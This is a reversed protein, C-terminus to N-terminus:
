KADDKAKDETKNMLTGGVAIDITSRVPQTVRNYFAQVLMWWQLGHHPCLRLLDKVHKWAEYLSEDERQAYTTIQNKLSVTKSPPFFKMIFVKTLEDWLTICRSPLSHLWVRAKDRLSFPFLRLRMDYTSVANLKLMDCVELFISIDLSPDELPTGGFQYQMM